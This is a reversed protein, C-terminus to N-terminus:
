PIACKALTTTDLEKLFAERAAALKAKLRCRQTLTCSGGDSRFCEVIAYRQEMFRVVEGLTISDPKKALRFGGKAGKYTQVYGARALEQVVKTLHNRSIKLEAALQETTFVTDMGGALRMLTRLGFDTFTTLRM